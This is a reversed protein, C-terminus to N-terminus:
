IRVKCNCVPCTVYNATENMHVRETLVDVPQYELLSGCNACEVQKPKGERIVKM